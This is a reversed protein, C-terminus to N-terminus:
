GVHAIAEIEVLADLAIRAVEVTSRAPRNEGFTEAYIANMTPFDAMNKLFVTTKIVNGLSSGAADLIARLNALAQRTQAEAGEVLKGTDPDIGLQGSCFVLNGYRVGASYPGAAKPV